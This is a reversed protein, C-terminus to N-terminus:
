DFPKLSPLAPGRLCDFVRLQAAKDRPTAVLVRVPASPGGAGSESGPGLSFLVRAEDLAQEASPPGAIEGEGDLPLLRVEENPGVWSLWPLPAEVFAPAGRGLGDTSLASPSDAGDSRLQVRVLAGGPGEVSEADDRAVVLVEPRPGHVHALVDFASVHGSISTLRRVPGTVKGAADVAVTELWGFARAEGVAEIDASGDSARSVEPRRALWFVLFGEGNPVARPMEADSDPPSLENIVATRQGVQFSAGRVVGRAAMHQTATEPGPGMATEDWVALGSAGSCALDLALSEDSRQPVHIVAPEPGQTGVIFLALDRPVYTATPIQTPAHSPRVFVAAVLQDRCSALRPPPADGLAPALDVTRVGMAAADMRAVAAVRGALARHILGIAYQGGHAVGDGIELEDLGDGDDLQLARDTPHCRAAVVVPRASSPADTASGAIAADQPAATSAVPERRCSVLAAGLLLPGVYSRRM